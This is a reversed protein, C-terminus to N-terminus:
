EGESFLQWTGVGKLEHEGRPRFTIGSGTVLDVVTRSVWVEGPDAKAQIRAALHVAIGAVDDGRREVEGTHLGVRVVLGLQHAGECLARGCELARAPGDFTALLGDGLNKVRRGGFRRVQRMAMTDHEDLVERWSRDGSQAARGTSDVIDSFLITALVRDSTRTGRFGTLFEEIEGLVADTDGVYPLHDAGNLEVLEAGSIEDALYRGHGIRIYDNTLRHLVLTPVSIMPLVSRVDSYAALANMARAGAPSAHRTGARTWWSRFEPDGALSPAVLALDDIAEGEYGPDIVAEIFRDVLYRPIGVPYDDDRILRAWAHMLIQASVREPYTAALQLAVVGGNAVGFLACRESGLADLVAVADRMWTEVTLPVGALPDSLGYGCPDFRILRCFSSLAADFRSWHPEDDHDVSITTGMTLGLVDIPGDGVVQYAVYV